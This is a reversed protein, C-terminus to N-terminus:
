ETRCFLKFNFIGTHQALLFQHKCNQFAQGCTIDVDNTFAHHFHHGVPEAEQSRWIGIIQGPRIINIHTGALDALESQLGAISHFTIDAARFVTLPIKCQELHVRDVELFRFLNAVFNMKVIQRRQIGVLAQEHFHIIRRFLVIGTPDDVKNCWQAFALPRQDHRWGPRTFRHQQLIDGLRYCGVVRFAIQDHQQDILTWFFDGVHTPRHAAFHHARSKVFGCAPMNLNGLHNDLLGFPQNLM